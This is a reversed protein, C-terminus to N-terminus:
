IPLPRENVTDCLIRNPLGGVGQICVDETSLIVSVQSFIVKAFKTQLRYFPKRSWRKSLWSVQPVSTAFTIVASQKCVSLWTAGTFICCQRKSLWSLLPVSTSLTTVASQKCVSLWTIFLVIFLVGDVHDHVSGFRFAENCLRLGFCYCDRGGGGM